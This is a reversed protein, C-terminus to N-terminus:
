PGAPGGEELQAAAREMRGPADIAWPCREACAGCRVCASAPVALQGYERKAWDAHGADWADLARSVAGIDIGSPCPLCHNCYVCSAPVDGAGGQPLLAAFDREEPTADVFALSQVLEEVNAPGPVVTSVAHRSLAYALFPVPTVAPDTRERLLKGGAFVKMAVLGVDNAACASLVGDRGSDGHHGLHVPYMLLDVRGSEVARISTAPTHGSFGIFRVQGEERYRSVQDLFPGLALDADEPQDVNHLFLVDVYDTGLRRLLDEFYERSEAIDRIKCYQGDREGAGFHTALLVRDRVGRLARGMWDRIEPQAYFFDIYDVGADVATRVVCDTNQASTGLLYETGLGIESVARETRGLRRKKM